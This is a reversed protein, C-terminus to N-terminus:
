SCALESREAKELREIRTDPSIILLPLECSDSLSRTNSGIFLGKLRNNGISGMIVLGVKEEKNIYEIASQLSKQDTLTEISTNENTFFQLSSKLENLREVTQSWLDEVESAFPPPNDSPVLKFSHYIIVKAAHLQNALNVAYRAANFANYSFDTLVLITEM